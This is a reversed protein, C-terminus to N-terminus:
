AGDVLLAGRVVEAGPHLGARHVHHERWADDAVLTPPAGAEVRIADAVHRAAAGSALPARRHGEGLDGSLSQHEGHWEAPEGLHGAAPELLRAEREVSVGSLGHAVAREELVRIEPEAAGEDGLRLRGTGEVCEDGPVELRARLHGARDLFSTERTRPSRM